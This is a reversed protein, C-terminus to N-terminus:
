DKSIIKEFDEGSITAADEGDIFLNKDVIKNVEYYKGSETFIVWDRELYNGYLTQGTKDPWFELEYICSDIPYISAILFKQATCLSPLLLLIFAKVFNM